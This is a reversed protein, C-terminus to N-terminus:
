RSLKVITNISDRFNSLRFYANHKNNNRKWQEFGEIDNEFGFYFIDSSSHGLVKWIHTDIEHVRVGIIFIKSSRTVQNRWHEYQEEIFDPCVKVAKGVAFMAISPALSDETRCKNLSQTRDLPTVPAAIDARFGGSFNCGRIISGGLDPWFNSSGHIKLLRLFNPTCNLGYYTPMGLASASQEFLLDYNLSCFVFRKTNIKMLLDLYLNRELPVFNALYGALERQFAMINGAFYKYYKQMGDEFNVSFADKIHQPAAQAAASHQLLESFLQNALPPTKLVSHQTDGFRAHESGFSAGAGLLIMYAM